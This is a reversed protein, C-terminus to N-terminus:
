HHPHTRVVLIPTFVAGTMVCGGKGLTHVKSSDGGKRVYMTGPLQKQFHLDLNEQQDILFTLNRCSCLEQDEYGENGLPQQGNNM